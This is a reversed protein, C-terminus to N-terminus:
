DLSPSCECELVAVKAPREMAALRQLTV